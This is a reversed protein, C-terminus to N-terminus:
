TLSIRDVDRYPAVTIRLLKWQEETLAKRAVKIAEETALHTRTKLAAFEKAAWEIDECYDTHVRRSDYCDVRCHNCITSDYQFGVWHHKTPNDLSDSPRPEDFLETM